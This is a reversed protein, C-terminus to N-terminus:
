NSLRINKKSNRKAIGTLIPCPETEAPLLFFILLSEYEWYHFSLEM